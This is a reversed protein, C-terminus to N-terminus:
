CWLWRGPVLEGRVGVAGPRLGGLDVSRRGGGGGFGGLLGLWWVGGLGVALL